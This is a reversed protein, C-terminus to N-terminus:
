LSEGRRHVGCWSIQFRVQVAPNQFAQMFEELTLTGSQDTDFELFLKKLDCVLSKNRTSEAQLLIHRDSQAMEIADNVFIGAIINLTHSNTFKYTCQWM